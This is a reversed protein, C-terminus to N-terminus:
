PTFEWSCLLQRLLRTSHSGVSGALSRFALCAACRPILWTISGLYRPDPATFFWMVLSFAVPLIIVLLRIFIGRLNRTKWAFIALFLTYVLGLTLPRAFQEKLERIRQLWEPVWSFGSKVKELDYYPQRGWYVTIDYFHSVAAEPIKWAM